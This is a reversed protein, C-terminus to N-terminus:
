KSKYRKQSIEGYPLYNKKFLRSFAGYLVYSQDKNNDLGKSVVYRGNEERVQCLSWLMYDCGLM